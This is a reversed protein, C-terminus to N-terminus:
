CCQMYLVLRILHQTDLVKNNMLFLQLRQRLTLGNNGAKNILQVRYTIVKIMVFFCWKWTLAEALKIENVQGM